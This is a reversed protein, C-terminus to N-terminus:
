QEMRDRIDALGSDGRVLELFNKQIAEEIERVTSKRAEAIGRVVDRILLPTGPKGTLWQPGGPNDTESLLRDPPIERAIKRIHDSHWVEPGVTFYFGKEAMKAFVDLPGAYWHVVVRRNGCAELAELTEREAGATHLIVIKDQAQAKALLYEFVKAQAPYQAPDDIFRRDLGIEGLIPSREILSDLDQLRDACAPANWPHVGFVPVIWPCQGAIKRNHRYSDADMSNSVTVIRHGRIEGVASLLARPNELAFRDLHTHADILM